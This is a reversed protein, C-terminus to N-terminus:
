KRSLLAKIRRVGAFLSFQDSYYDILALGKDADFDISHPGLAKDISISGCINENYSHATLETIEAIMISSGYGRNNNQGFRFIGNETKLIRGAMRASSPSLTIPSSPHAEFSDDMSDAVWLNLVSHASHSEGFFLYWKNNHELLTADVIRKDQLGKIPSHTNSNDQLDIFYQSSHSAVEPLLKERGDLMFSFPYSYHQKSLIIKDQIKDETDIEIIDGLGTKKDLAELRIKKRDISFFPDAYFSYQPEIPLEDIDRLTITNKHYPNLSFRVTGVKWKKEFLLGYTLHKIRNETLRKVFSFVTLNSPLRYNKGNTDIDIQKNEIINIIAKRLLYKSQQYFNEATKRYSYHVLKSEAYAYVKGADLENTLSQVIIGQNDANQFLEYFGAPRGRFKAPNGHHYSLIPIDELREDVKLLNMGFKIIIDIGEDLIEDLITIPISQWNGTYISKFDLIKINNFELSEKKSYTNKLTFLNLAYYSFHKKIDRKIKTNQCNLVLQIDLLDSAQKLSEKQWHAISLNDVILAARIKSM